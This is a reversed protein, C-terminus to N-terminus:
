QLDASGKLTVAGPGPLDAVSNILTASSKAICFSSALTSALAPGATLDGAPVGNEEIYECTAQGFCGATRQVPPGPCFVGTGASDSTTGTTLPSLDVNFPALTVSVLPCDHSTLLSTPTTCTGGSNVGSDCTGGTCTPCPQIGPNATELDGTVRVFVRLPLTQTSTGTTTNLVGSVAPSAAIQNIVCTSAGPSGSNPIPLPPGFLCGGATCNRISGTDTSTAAALVYASSVSCDAVRIVNAAGDPTPSPPQTSGGGGIYLTGCTLVNTVSGYPTLDTGTGATDDNIRGCTGAPLGTTFVLSDFTRCTCDPLCLKPDCACAANDSGDCDEGPGVINNGCGIPLCTCNNRCDGPCAADSTGDCGEGSDTVNDGCDPPQCDIRCANPATNSNSTGDDCGEGSDLVDDGCHARVCTTRCANPTTNSNSAGNDCEEGSDLVGDGCRAAQCTTRCANPTTNSNSAGSDCTEGSDVVGDGCRAAQCTTRCANAATDSNNAGNDCEEGSDLVGDGCGADQCTTRCADPATDSNNAGDDCEEPAVTQGDGCIKIGCSALDDGKCCNQCTKFGDADKTCSKKNTKFAQKADKKCQKDGACADIAADKQAKFGDVCAKKQDKCDNKCDKATQAEAAPPTTVLILGAVLAALIMFPRPRM